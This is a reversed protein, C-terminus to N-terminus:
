LVALEPAERQIAERGKDILQFVRQKFEGIDGAIRTPTDGEILREAIGVLRPDTNHLIELIRALAADDDIIDESILEDDLTRGRKLAWDGSEDEDSTDRSDIRSQFTSFCNNDATQQQIDREQLKMSNIRAYMERQIFNRIWKDAYTTFAYGSDADYKSIARMVGMVGAQFIECFEVYEPIIFCSGIYRKEALRYVYPTMSAIVRDMARADGAQAKVALAALEDRHLVQAVDIIMAAGNKRSHYVNQKAQNINM